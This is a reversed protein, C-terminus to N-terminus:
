INAECVVLSFASRGLDSDIKATSRRHCVLLFGFNESVNRFNWNNRHKMLPRLVSVLSDSCLHM